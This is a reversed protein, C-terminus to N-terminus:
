AVYRGLRRELRGQVWALFTCVVWYYLAALAYMELPRSAESAVQQALRFVETVLVVSALSTDKVLSLFTNSLPPVAVRTAQPIVVRRMTQRYDMGITAAAETQGKPVSLIASRIIEAAYGAVNLSFTLVAAPYPDFKVGLQPLGYFILFLQVLLPTGRIVSIFAQAPWSLWRTTSLRALAVLLALVLGIAFSLLSLPITVAILKVLMPGAEDQLVQWSSRGKDSRGELDAEGGNPVSVDAGFYRQSIEELTGDKRLQKIATSAEDALAADGKRFALAQEAEEDGLSASIKIGDSGTRELYDLIAINDNVVVDVRDQELLQVAQALQDVTELKAGAKKAAASWNSTASGAAIKGKIDDVSDISDDDARTVIVGHSYTYPESFVYKAERDPTITVQNAITDIRDADLAAFLADWTSQVFQPEWGAEEAVARMVEVDYGTLEDDADVYSFPPYTGETGVRIPEDEAAAPGATLAGIGLLGALLALVALIRM